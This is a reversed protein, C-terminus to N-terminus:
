RRAVLVVGAAAALLWWWSVSAPLGISSLDVGASADSPLGSSDAVGYADVSFVPVGDALDSLPANPDLGTQAAVNAVYAATNNGASAPAWSNILDSLTNIPRGTVDSGRSVDLTIQDKLAAVGADYSPFRAFGGAGPVAGSQGAFVLNGPNNNTYALSGPYYGEQTQIAAALANV